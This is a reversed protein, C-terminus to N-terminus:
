RSARGAGEGGGSDSLMAVAADREGATDFILEVQSGYWGVRLAPRRARLWRVEGAQMGSLAGLARPVTVWVQEGDGAVSLRIEDGHRALVLPTGALELPSRGPSSLRGTVTAHITDAVPPTEAWRRDPLQTPRFIPYGSRRGMWLLSALSLFLIPGIWLRDVPLSPDHEVVAARFPQAWGLLARALPTDLFRGVAGPDRDQRGFVHLPAVNPPYALQVIVAGGTTPDYALHLWPGIGSALRRAQCGGDLVCAAVGNGPFDLTLRVLSGPAQEGLAEVSGVQRSDGEAAASGPELGQLSLRSASAPVAAGRSRLADLVAATPIDDRVRALVERRQLAAPDTASRVLAVRRGGLGDRLAVWRYTGPAPGTEPDFPAEADLPPLAALGRIELLNASTALQRDVFASVTTRAVIIEAGAQLVPVLGLVLLGWTVAPVFGVTKAAAEASRAIQLRWGLVIGGVLAGSVAATALPSDIIPQTLASALLGGGAAGVSLLALRAGLGLRSRLLIAAAGVGVVAGVAGGLVAAVPAYDRAMDAMGHAVAGVGLATAAAVLWPVAPPLWRWASPSGAATRGLRELGPPLAGLLARLRM